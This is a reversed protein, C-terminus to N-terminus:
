KTRFDKFFESENKTEIFKRFQGWNSNFNGNNCSLGAVAQHETPSAHIPESGVLRTYLELDKEISPKENDHTLYSVRACRAASCKALTEINLTEREEPLTYPLHYDGYQLIKQTSSNYKNLMMDSLMKIEPQADPHSRLEFFNDWYSSTVIGKTMTHWDNLRNSWQKHLGLDALKESANKCYDIADQWIKEAESINEIEETSAQMGAQNKGWYLPKFSDQQTLKKVPIARSSSFNRSFVRHTNFEALIVKPLCIEFTTLRSGKYLSDEIIKVYINM